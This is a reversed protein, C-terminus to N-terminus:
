LKAGAQRRSVLRAPVGVATTNEAVNQLVVSGAGIRAGNGITVNGLVSAGAGILVGDGVKPHRDHETTEGTTNGLTVGHLLTCDNGVTATEGIVISSAHDLLVGAGITANPHIDVGCAASARSQLWLAMYRASGSHWLRFAARHAVLAAFGKFFLVVELASKCAPDRQLVARLDARIAHDATHGHETVKARDPGLIELEIVQRITQAPMEATALRQATAAAVAQEFSHVSPALVTARLLGSLAPEDSEVQLAERRIRQSLADEGARAGM